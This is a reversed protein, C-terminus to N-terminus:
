TQMVEVSRKELVGAGGPGTGCGAKGVLQGARMNVALTFLGESVLGVLGM